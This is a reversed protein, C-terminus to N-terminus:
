PLRRHAVTKGSALDVVEVYRGFAEWGYVTVAKGPGARLNLRNRYKSHSVPGIGRLPTQWHLRGKALDFAVLTCGTSISDHITFVLLHGPLILIPSEDHPKVTILTRAGRQFTVQGRTRATPRSVITVTYGAGTPARLSRLYFDTRSAAPDWRWPPAVGPRVAAQRPPPGQRGTAGAPFPGGACLVSLAGLLIANRM